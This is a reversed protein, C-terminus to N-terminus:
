VEASGFQREKETLAGEQLWELATDEPKCPNVWVLNKLQGIRQSNENFLNRVEEDMSVILGDTVSAAEILHLDKTMAAKPHSENVENIKNRIPQIEPAAIRIVKKRADMATLWTSSFRSRHKRWEDQIEPTVVFKHCIALVAKLFDRCQISVPSTAADDGAARTVTTDIVLSRGM